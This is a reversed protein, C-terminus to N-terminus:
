NVRLHMSPDFIALSTQKKIQLLFYKLYEEFIKNKVDGLSMKKISRKSKNYQIIVRVPDLYTLFSGICKRDTAKTLYTCLKIHVVDSGPNM